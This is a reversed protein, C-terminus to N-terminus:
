TSQPVGAVIGPVPNGYRDRSAKSFFRLTLLEPCPQIRGPLPDRLTLYHYASKQHVGVCSFSKSAVTRCVLGM